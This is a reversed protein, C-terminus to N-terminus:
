RMTPETSCQIEGWFACGKKGVYNKKLTQSLVALFFGLSMPGSDEGLTTALKDGQDEASCRKFVKAECSRRKVTADNVVELGVVGILGVLM